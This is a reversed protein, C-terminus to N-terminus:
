LVFCHLAITFKQGSAPPNLAEVIVPAIYLDGNADLKVKRCVESAYRVSNDNTIQSSLELPQGARKTKRESYTPVFVTNDAKISGGAGNIDASNFFFLVFNKMTGDSFISAGTIQIYKNAYEAGFSIKPLSDANHNNVIMGATYATPNNSRQIEIIKDILEERTLARKLEKLVNDKEKSYLVYEVVENCHKEGPGTVYTEIRGDTYEVTFEKYAISNLKSLFDRGFNDLEEKSYNM